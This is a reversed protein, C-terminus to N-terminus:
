AAGRTFLTQRCDIRGEAGLLSEANPMGFIQMSPTADEHDEAEWM